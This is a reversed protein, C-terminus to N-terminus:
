KNHVAFEEVYQWGRYPGERTCTLISNINRRWVVKRSTPPRWTALHGLHIGTLINPMACKFGLENNGVCFCDHLRIRIGPFEVM